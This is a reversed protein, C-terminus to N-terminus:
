ELETERKWVAGGVGSCVRYRDGDVAVVRVALRTDRIIAADGEKFRRAMEGGSAPYALLNWDDPLCLASRLFFAAQGEGVYGALALYAPRIASVWGLEGDRDGEVKADVAGYAEAIAKGMGVLRHLTPTNVTMEIRISTWRNRGYARIFFRGVLEYDWEIQAYEGIETMWM